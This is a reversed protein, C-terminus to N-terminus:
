SATTTLNGFSVLSAFLAVAGVLAVKAARIAIM